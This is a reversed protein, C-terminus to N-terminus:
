LMEGTRCRYGNVFDQSSMTRKGEPKLQMIKLSTNNGTSVILGDKNIEIIKGPPINDEIISTLEETKSIKLRKGRFISYAGPFPTLGRVLCDIEWASKKWNIKCTEKTLKPAYTAKSHDQPQPLLPSNGFKELAENLIEAGLVALRDHLTEVNDEKSIETEKQLLIDGTDMGKDMKMITIGTKKEGNILSWNIPAAGRYKPLLSAHVNICGNSPINLISLPLIKGYAVVVILEPNNQKLFDKSIKTRIKEPQFVPINNKLAEIKVPPPLLKLGRGKKRDPQTVVALVNCIPITLLKRLAPVAFDPTGMFIINLNSIM